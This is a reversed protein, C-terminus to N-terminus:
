FTTDGLLAGTSSDRTEAKPTNKSKHIGLVTIESAGNNNADPSVTILQPAYGGALFRITNLYTKNNKADKIKVSPQGFESYLVGIEPVGNGDLDELAVLGQPATLGSKFTLTSLLTETKPDRIKVIHKTTVYDVYLTAIENSGNRNMDPLVALGVYNDASWECIYTYTDTASAVRWGENFRSLVYDNGDNDRWYQYVWKEGTVWTFRGEVAADSGGIWFQGNSLSNYIFGREAESTITVLHAGLAECNKKASAWNVSQDFRQYFHQNTKWQIRLSDAQVDAALSFLVASGLYLACTLKKNNNFM